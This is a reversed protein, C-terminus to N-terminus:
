IGVCGHRVVTASIFYHLVIFINYCLEVCLVDRSFLRSQELNLIILTFQLFTIIDSRSYHSYTMRTVGCSHHKPWPIGCYVGKPKSPICRVEPTPM